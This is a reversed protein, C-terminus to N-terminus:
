TNIYPITLEDETKCPSTLTLDLTEFTSLYDM